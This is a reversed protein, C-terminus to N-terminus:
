ARNAFGIDRQTQAPLILRESLRRIRVRDFEDPVLRRITRTNSGLLVSSVDSKRLGLLTYSDTSTKVSRWM